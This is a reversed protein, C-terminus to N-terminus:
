PKERLHALSRPSNQLGQGLGRLVAVQRSPTGTKAPTLLELTRALTIDDARSGAISALRTLLQLSAKADGMVEGLLEPARQYASSLVASQVWPDDADHRAIQALATTAEPRNSEGLSFALQFRVRPSLDDALRVAARFIADSGALRGEALRLGQERVGPERDGLAAIVDADELVRLGHMTWLAHARGVASASESALTRLSK